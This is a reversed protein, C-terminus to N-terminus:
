KGDPQASKNYFNLKMTTRQLDIQSKHLKAKEHSVFAMRGMTDIRFSKNCWKCRASGGDKPDPACWPFEEEYRPAYTIPM